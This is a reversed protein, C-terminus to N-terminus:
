ENNEREAIMMMMMKVVGVVVVKVEPRPFHQQKPM